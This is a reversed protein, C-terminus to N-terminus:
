GELQGNGDTQSQVAQTARRAGAQPRRCKDQPLSSRGWSYARCPSWQRSSLVQSRELAARPDWHSIQMKTITWINLGYVNFGSYTGRPGNPYFLDVPYFLPTISLEHTWSVQARWDRAWHWRNEAGHASACEQLQFVPAPARSKIALLLWDRKRQLNELVFLPFLPVLGTAEERKDATAFGHYSHIRAARLTHRRRVAPCVVHIRGIRPSDQRKIQNLVRVRSSDIYYNHIVNRWQWRM